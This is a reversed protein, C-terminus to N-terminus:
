EVRHATYDVSLIEGRGMPIECHSLRFLSGKGAEGTGLEREELGQGLRALVGVAVDNKPGPLRVDIQVNDFGAPHLNAVRGVAVSEDRRV